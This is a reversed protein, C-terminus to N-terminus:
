KGGFGGGGKGGGAGFTGGDGDAYSSYAGLLDNFDNQYSKVGMKRMTRQMATQMGPADPDSTDNQIQKKSKTPMPAIMKNMSHRFQNKKLQLFQPYVSTSSDSNGSNNAM